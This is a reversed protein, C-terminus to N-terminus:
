PRAVFDVGTASDGLNVFITPNEFRHRKSQVTVFYSEGAQVNDFRYYGFSTTLAPVPAPLGGGMLLVRMGSIGRGAADTARGAITALAATTGASATISLDDISLGHDGGLEDLQEWRLMIEEGPLVTVGFSASLVVRNALLNGNVSGAGPTINPSVFELAPVATYVGTSLDNVSTATRYAFVLSQPTESGGNHWQEGTFTVQFSSIAVASNNILRIGFRTAGTSAGPMAGLSRDAQLSQGYNRFGEVPDSGDDAKVSNPNTNGVERLAHFGPLSGTIDDALLLDFTGMGDFNQTYPTNLSTISVQADARPVSLVFIAALLSLVAISRVPLTTSDGSRPRTSINLQM